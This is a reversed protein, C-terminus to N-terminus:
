NAVAAMSKFRPNFIIANGITGRIEVEVPNSERQQNKDSETTARREEGTKTETKLFYM